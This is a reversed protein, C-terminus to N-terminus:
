STAQKALQPDYATWSREAHSGEEILQLLGSRVALVHQTQAVQDADRESHYVSLHGIRGEPDGGVILYGRVFGPQGRLWEVLDRHLELVKDQMGDKPVMLSLRVYFRADAPYQM